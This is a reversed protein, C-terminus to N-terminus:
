QVKHSWSEFINRHKCKVSVRSNTCEVHLVAVTEVTRILILYILSFMPGCPSLSTPPTVGWRSLRWTSSLVDLNATEATRKPFHDSMRFTYKPSVVFHKKSTVSLNKLWNWPSDSIKLSNIDSIGCIKLLVGVHFVCRECKNMATTNFAALLQLM